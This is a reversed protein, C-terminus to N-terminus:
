QAVRLHCFSEAKRKRQQRSADRWGEQAVRLQWFFRWVKSLMMACRAMLGQVVRLHCFVQMLM